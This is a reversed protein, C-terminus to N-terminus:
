WPNGILKICMSAPVLICRTGILTQRTNCLRSLCFSIEALWTCHVDIGISVRALIYPLVNDPLSVIRVGFDSCELAM